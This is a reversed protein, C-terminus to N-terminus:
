CLGQERLNLGLGIGWKQFCALLKGKLFVCDAFLHHLLVFVIGILHVLVDFQVEQLPGFALDSVFELDVM